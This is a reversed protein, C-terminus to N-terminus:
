ENKDAVMYLQWQLQIQRAQNALKAEARKDCPRASGQALTAQAYTGPGQNRQLKLTM